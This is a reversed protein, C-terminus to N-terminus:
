GAGPLSLDGRVTRYEVEDLLLNAPLGECAGCVAVEVNGFVNRVLLFGGTALLPCLM